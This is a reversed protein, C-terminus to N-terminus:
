PTVRRWASRAHSRVSPNGRSDAARISATAIVQPAAVLGLRRQVGAIFGIRSVHARERRHPECARGSPAGPSERNYPAPSTSAAAAVAGPPGPATLYAFVDNIERRNPNQPM